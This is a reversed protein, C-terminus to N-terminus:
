PSFSFMFAFRMNEIRFQIYIHGLSTVCVLPTSTYLTYMCMVNVRLKWDGPQWHTNANFSFFVSSTIHLACSGGVTVMPLEHVGLILITIIIRVYTVLIFIYNCTTCQLRHTYTSKLLLTRVEKLVKNPCNWCKFTTFFIQLSTPKSQWSHWCYRRKPTSLKTPWLQTPRKEQKLMLPCM